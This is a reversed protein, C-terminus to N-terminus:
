WTELKLCFLSFSPMTSQTPFQHLVVVNCPYSIRKSKENRRKYLKFLGVGGIIVATTAGLTILSLRSKLISNMKELIYNRISKNLAHIYM